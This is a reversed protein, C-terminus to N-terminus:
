NTWIFFHVVFASHWPNFIHLQRPPGVLFISLSSLRHCICLSIDIHNGRLRTWHQSLCWWVGDVVNGETGRYAACVFFFSVTSPGPWFVLCFSLCGPIRCSSLQRDKCVLNTLTIGLHSSLWWGREWSTVPEQNLDSSWSFAPASSTGWMVGAHTGERSLRLGALFSSWLCFWNGRFDESKYPRSCRIFWSWRGAENTIKRKAPYKLSCPQKSGWFALVSQGNCRGEALLSVLIFM